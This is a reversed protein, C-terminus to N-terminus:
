TDPEPIEAGLLLDVPRPEAAAEVGALCGQEGLVELAAVTWGDEPAGIERTLEAATRPTSLAGVLLTLPTDLHVPAPNGPVTVLAQEGLRHVTVGPGIQYKM